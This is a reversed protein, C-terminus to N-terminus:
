QDDLCVSYFGEIMLTAAAAGPDLLGLSKERFVAAKGHQNIM